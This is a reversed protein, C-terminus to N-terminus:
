CCVVERVDSEQKGKAKNSESEIEASEKRM